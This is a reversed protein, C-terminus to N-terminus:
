VGISYDRWSCILIASTGCRPFGRLFMKGRNLILSSTPPAAPVAGYYVCNLAYSVASASGPLRFVNAEGGAGGGGLRQGKEQFLSM